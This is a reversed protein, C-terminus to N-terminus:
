RLRLWSLREKEGEGEGEGEGKGEEERKRREKEKLMEKYVDARIAGYEVQRRAVRVKRVAEEEASAGERPAVEWERDPKWSWFTDTKRVRPYSM